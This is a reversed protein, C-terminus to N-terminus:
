LKPSPVGHCLIDVTILNDYKKGLFSHLGAIQCETGSFLVLRGNDLFDKCEKFTNKINAPIYKSGMLKSLDKLKDVYSIDVLWDNNWSAGFVIGNNDLVYKALSYFIGGSSSKKRIDENLNYALYSDM